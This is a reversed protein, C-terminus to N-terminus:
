RRAYLDCSPESYRPRESFGLRRINDRVILDQRSEGCSVVAGLHTGEAVLAALSTVISPDDISRNSADMIARRRAEYPLVPTYSAGYILLVEDLGTMQQVMVALPMPALDASAQDVYYGRLYSGAMATLAAAFLAVGAWRMLRSGELCTVMGCGGIVAIFLGNEYAYYVHALFPRMFIAIPLFYLGVCGLCAALRRRRWLMAAFALAFVAPSAIVAHRTGGYIANAPVAYWSRLVFRDAVVGFRQDREAAFDIENALPSRTKMHDAFALWAGTSLVPVLVAAIM